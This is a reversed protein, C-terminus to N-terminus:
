PWSWNLFYVHMDMMLKMPEPYEETLAEPRPIEDVDSLLVIDDAAVDEMAVLAANRQARERAWDLNPGPELAAQVYRIKDEWRRFRAKQRPYFYPKPHGRQTLNAEVLVHVDVVPALTALRIELVDSEGCYPTASWIM